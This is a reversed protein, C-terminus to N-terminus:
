DQKGQGLRRQRKELNQTTRRPTKGSREISSQSGWICAVISWVGQMTITQGHKVVGWWVRLQTRLPGQENVLVDTRDLVCHRSVWTNFVHLFPHISLVFFLSTFSVFLSSSSFTCQTQNIDCSQFSNRGSWGALLRMVSHDSSHDAPNQRSTQKSLM